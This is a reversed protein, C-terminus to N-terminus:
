RGGAGLDDDSNDGGSADDDSEDEEEARFRTDIARADYGRERLYRAVVSSYGHTVSVQQPGCAEVATMLSDWDIHDSLVFGRDVARRRRTGRIMMWGSAMATRMPGFRRTWASGHASPVAIVLAGRFNHRPKTTSVPVTPPMAVGSRRYAEVGNEVAGHTYIPGISPDVGALVRQSKGIAYAYLISCKGASAGDRWWKNIQDFVDAPEPWHYIPLGFTSETVFHDCPVPEWRECTPDDQLKYDGSVVAVHGDHELRVQASGLMHGAPHLSIRVGQHTVPEGYAVCEINAQAGLRMRLLHEGARAALYHQCGPRAHDSHAHTVVARAVPRWPDIYFDGAECYLGEDSPRILANM